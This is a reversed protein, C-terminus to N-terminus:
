FRRANTPTHAEQKVEQEQPGSDSLDPGASFTGNKTVHVIGMRILTDRNRIPIKRRQLNNMWFAIQQSVQPSKWVAIPSLPNVDKLNGASKRVAAQFELLRGERAMEKEIEPVMNLLGRRAYSAVEMLADARAAHYRTKAYEGSLLAHLNQKKKFATQPGIDAIFPLDVEKEVFGGGEGYFGARGKVPVRVTGKEPARRIKGKNPGEQILVDDITIKQPKGAADLPINEAYQNTLDNLVATRAKTYKGYEAAEKGAAPTTEGMFREMWVAPSGRKGATEAARVQGEVSKAISEIEKWAKDAGYQTSFLQEDMGTKNLADRAEKPLQQWSRTWDASESYIKSPANKPIFSGRTVPGVRNAMDNATASTIELWNPNEIQFEFKRATDGLVKGAVKPPVSAARLSVEPIKSVANLPDIAAGFDSTAKAGRAFANLGKATNTAGIATASAGLVKSTLGVVGAGLGLVSSVDSLVEVPHYALSKKANAWSGYKDVFYEKVAKGLVPTAKNIDIKEADYAPAFTNHGAQLADALMEAAMDFPVDIHRIASGIQTLYNKFDAPINGVGLKAADGLSMEPTQKIEAPIKKTPRATPSPPLQPQGIADYPDYTQEPSGISAYPDVTSPNNQAM